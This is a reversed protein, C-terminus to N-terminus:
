FSVGDMNPSKHRTPSVFPRWLAAFGFFGKLNTM